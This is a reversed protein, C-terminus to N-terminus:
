HEFLYYVCNSHSTPPCNRLVTSLFALVLPSIQGKEELSWRGAFFPPCSSKTIHCSNILVLSSIQWKEELSRCDAFIIILLSAPAHDPTCPPCSSNTMRCSNILVFPSIKGKEKLSGRGAFIIMLLSAPAHDPTCLLCSSNTMRSSNNRVRFSNIM